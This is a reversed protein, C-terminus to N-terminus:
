RSTDTHQLAIFLRADYLTCYATLYASVVTGAVCGALQRWFAMWPAVLLPPLHPLIVLDAHVMPLIVFLIQILSVALRLGWTSTTVTRFDRVVLQVSQILPAFIGECTGVSVGSCIQSTTFKM